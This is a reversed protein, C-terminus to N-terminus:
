CRAGHYTGVFNNDVKSILASINIGFDKLFSWPKALLIRAAMERTGLMEVWAYLDSDKYPLLSYKWPEAKEPQLMVNFSPALFYILAREHNLATNEDIFYATIQGKFEAFRKRQVDFRKGCGKGVYICKDQHFFQYVYYKWAM